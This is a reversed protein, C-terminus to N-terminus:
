RDERRGDEEVVLQQDVVDRLEPVDVRQELKEATEADGRDAGALRDRQVAGTELRAFRWVIEDPLHACGDVHEPRQQRADAARADRQGASTGPPRPRDIKM